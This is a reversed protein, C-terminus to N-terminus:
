IRAPGFMSRREPSRRLRWIIPFFLGDLVIGAVADGFISTQAVDVPWRSLWIVSEAARLLISALIALFIQSALYDFWMITMMRRALLVLLLWIVAHGGLIGHLSADWAIGALFALTPVQYDDHRVSECLLWLAIFQPRPMGPLFTHWLMDAVFAIIGGVWLQM